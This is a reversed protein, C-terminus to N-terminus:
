RKAATTAGAVGLDEPGAAARASVRLHSPYRRRRSSAPDRWRPRRPRCTTSSASTRASCCPCWTSACRTWCASTWASSPSTPGASRPGGRGPPPGQGAGGGARSRRHRVQVARGRAAMGPSPTPSWSCRFGWPHTGGWGDAVNCLRRETVVAGAREIAERLYQASAQSTRFTLQPQREPDRGPRKRVLRAAARGPRHSRRRLRGAVDVAGCDRHGHVTAM